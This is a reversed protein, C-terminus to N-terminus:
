QGEEYLPVVLNINGDQSIGRYAWRVGKLAALYKWSAYLEIDDDFRQNPRTSISPDIIMLRAIREIQSTNSPWKSLRNGMLSQVESILQSNLQQATAIQKVQQDYRMKLFLDTVGAVAIILAASIAGIVMIRNERQKRLARREEVLMAPHTPLKLTALDPSLEAVQDFLVDPHEILMRSDITGSHVVNWGSSDLAEVCHVYIGTDPSELIGIFQTGTLLGSVYLTHWLGYVPIGPYQQKVRGLERESLYFAPAGTAVDEPALELMDMIESDSLEGGVKDPLLIVEKGEVEIPKGILSYFNM